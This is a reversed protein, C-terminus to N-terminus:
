DDDDDEDDAYLSDAYLPNATNRSEEWMSYAKEYDDDTWESMKGPFTKPADAPAAVDPAKLAQRKKAPLPWWSTPENDDDDSTVVKRKRPARPPQIEEEIDPFLVPTTTRELREDDEDMTNEEGTNVAALLM